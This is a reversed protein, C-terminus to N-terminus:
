QLASETSLQSYLLSFEQGILINLLDNIMALSLDFSNKPFIYSEWQRWFQNLEVHRNESGKRM